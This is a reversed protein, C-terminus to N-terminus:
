SKELFIEGKADAATSYFVGKMKKSSFVVLDEFTRSERQRGFERIHLNVHSRKLFHRDYYGDVEITVRKDREYELTQNDANTERIKEGTGSINNGKQILVVHFEILLGKYPDRSSDLIKMKLIWVGSFNRKVFVFENLLFFILTLILGGVITAITNIFIECM